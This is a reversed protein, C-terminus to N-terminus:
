ATAPRPGLRMVLLGLGILSWFWIGGQPGELYPDFSTDVMAAIWVVLIWLGFASLVTDGARRHRIVARVLGVAFLGQLLVWLVLGPVGMRALVTLHTNHPARLSRDLTTQFGDDDALNVGFGKGTWFYDGFVTYDIISGWWALRFQKTGELGNDPSSTFVSVLNQILQDISAPRGRPTPADPILDGFEVRVEDIGLTAVGAAEWLHVQAYVAGEAIRKSGSVAQWTSRGGTVGSAVFESSIANGSRDFWNVYIEVIPRGEIAKAWLSVGIDPGSGVRFESSTLAAKYPGRENRIFAFYQGAYGAGRLAQYTGALGHTWGPISGDGSPGLEFGPNVIELGPRTTEEPAQVGPTATTPQVSPSPNAAPSVLPPLAAAVGRLAGWGALAVPFVVIAVLIPLWNRSRSAVLALIAIGAVITLLAGRNSTGTVFATWLLPLAVAARWVLTRWSAVAGAGLVLFSLAGVTHVAMDGGKFFVVPVFRGPAYPDINASAAAFLNWSVPLWFAFVPVIWGYLKWAQLVMARDSVLYVILAFAAYGWLVGDRLANMGYTALYPVTRAAGLVMFAVLLVVTWTLPARARWRIAAVAATAVGLFLVWDGVYVPGLQIHAFGRGMFMYGALLAALAMAFIRVLQPAEPLWARAHALQSAPLGRGPDQTM